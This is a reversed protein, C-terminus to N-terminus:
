KILVLHYIKKLFNRIFGILVWLHIYIVDKPNFMKAKRGEEVCYKVANRCYQRAHRKTFNRLIIGRKSHEFHELIIPVVIKSMELSDNLLLDRRLKSTQSAHLRYMVDYNEDQILNYGQSFIQYWMLADQNYRLEESFEGCEDFAGKPILMACGNLMSHRSIYEFMEEGTYLKNPILDSKAKDVINSQNDIFCLKSMAITNQADLSDMKNLLKVLNELKYPTYKDDHSLWSFYEGEMKSIGFNLASSVGGNEKLYYKVKNGYSKVIEDTKNDDNSGDNVVIVEYNDYTQSLASDISERIYNAGNYVPIIISIKPNKSETLM